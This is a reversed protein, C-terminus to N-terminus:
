TNLNNRPRKVCNYIVFHDTSDLRSLTSTDTSGSPSSSSSKFLFSVASDISIYCLQRMHPLWNCSIPAVISEVISHCQSACCNVSFHRIFRVSFRASTFFFTPPAVISLQTWVPPRLSPLQLNPRSPWRNQRVCLDLHSNHQGSSLSLLCFRRRIWGSLDRMRGEWRGCFLLFCGAM